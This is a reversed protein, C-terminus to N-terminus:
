CPAFLVAPEGASSMGGQSGDGRDGNEPRLGIQARLMAPHGGLMCDVEGGPAGLGDEVREIGLQGGSEIRGPGRGACCRRSATAATAARSGCQRCAQASRASSAPRGWRDSRRRGPPSDGHARHAARRRSARSPSRASARRAWGPSGGNAGCAGAPPPPSRRPRRPAASRGKGAGVRGRISREPTRVRAGLPGAQVYNSYRVTHHDFHRHGGAEGSVRCGASFGVGAGARLCGGCGRGPFM